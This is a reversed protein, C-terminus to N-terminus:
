RFEGKQILVDAEGRTLGVIVAQEHLTSDTAGRIFNSASLHESGEDLETDAADLGVDGEQEAEEGVISEDLALSPSSCTGM